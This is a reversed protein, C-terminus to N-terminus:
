GEGLKGFRIMPSMISEKTARWILVSSDPNKEVM